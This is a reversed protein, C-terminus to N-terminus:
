IQRITKEVFLKVGTSIIKHSALTEAEKDKQKLLDM